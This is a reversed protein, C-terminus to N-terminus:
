VKLETGAFNRQSTFSIVPARHRDKKLDEEWRPFAFIGISIGLIM